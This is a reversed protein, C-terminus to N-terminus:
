KTIEFSTTREVVTKSKTSKVSVKLEYFGPAIDALPFQRGLEIGKKTNLDLPLPKWGTEAVVQDGRHVETLYTLSQVDSSSFRAPPYVRLYFGLSDKQSYAKMGQRTGNQLSLNEKGLTQVFDLSQADTLLINSVEVKKSNIAPVTVWAAATGIRDTETDRVGIRIQYTGPKLEIRRSYRFGQRKARDMTEPILQSQISTSDTRVSEGSSNFILSLMELAFKHREGEPQYQVRSGDIFVQLSVQATDVETEIYDASAFVGIDALALPSVAAEALRQQPTKVASDKRAKNLASPLYGQQARVSYEPHGKVRVTLRRFRNSEEDGSPYYGLAYYTSNDDIAKKMSGVLDNTNRYPEGGTDRALANMVNEQDDEARSMYSNVMNSGIPVRLTLDFGPPPSLGKMDLTYIVVGSVAAKSTVTQLDSTDMGGGQSYLTFGDSLSVIMRQGPLTALRDILARLSAFTVRRFFSAEALKQSSRSRALGEMMTRPGTIMEEYQMALIALDMANPDGAEVQAALYPTFITGSQPGRAGIKDVASMLIRRDKTFQSFLGLNGASTVIAVLDDDSLKEAIFRKLTQRALLLRADSLHLNDVFLVVTRVPAESASGRRPEAVIANNARPEPPPSDSAVLTGVESFFSIEQTQKNELIEFDEKKLGRIPRDQKDTVVARVDVLSTTVKITPDQDAKKQAPNQTSTQNQAIAAVGLAFLLSVVSCVSVVSIVSHSRSAPKATEKRRSRQRM